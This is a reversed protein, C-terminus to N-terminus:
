KRRKYKKLYNAGYNVKIYDLAFKIKEYDWVQVNNEEMCRQKAQLKKDVKGSYIEVLNHDKDLLQNGKIEVIDGKYLFDPFYKYQKGKYVYSFCYPCRQIKEGHDKAYIWLALEWTSDFSEGQYFYKHCAKKHYEATQTYYDAGYKKRNTMKIKNKVGTSKFASDCGYKELCTHKMNELMKPVVSTKYYDSQTFLGGYRNMQSNYSAQAQLEVSKTINFERLRRRITREHVNFHKAAEEESHNETIYYDYLTQKDIEKRQGQSVLCLDRPKYIEYKKLDHRVVNENTHFMSAIEKATKNLSIYQTYLQDRTYERPLKRMYIGEKNLVFIKPMSDDSRRKQM